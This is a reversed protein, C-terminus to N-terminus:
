VDPRIHVGGLVVWLGMWDSLAFPEDWISEWEIGWCGVSATSQVVVIGVPPM